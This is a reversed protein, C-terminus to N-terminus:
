FFRPTKRFIFFYFIRQFPYTELYQSGMRFDKERVDPYTVCWLLVMMKWKSLDSMMIPGDNTRPLDGMLILDNKERPLDSMMILGSKGKEV